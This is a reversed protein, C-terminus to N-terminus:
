TSQMALYCIEEEEEEEEEERSSKLQGNNFVREPNAWLLLLLRFILLDVM